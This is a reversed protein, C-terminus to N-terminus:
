TRNHTIWQDLRQNVGQLRESLDQLHVSLSSVIGKLEGFSAMYKPDKVCALNDVKKNLQVIDNRLEDLKTDTSGEKKGSNRLIAAISLIWGFISIICLVIAIVISVDM